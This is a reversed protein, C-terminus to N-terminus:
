AEELLHGQPCRPNGVTLYKQTTRVLYPCECTLKIMRTGAKPGGEKVVIPVHPWPPLSKLLGKVLTTLEVGLRTETPRDSPIGLKRLAARFVKGHGKAVGVAAHTLEHILTAAVDYANDHIPSIFIHIGGDQSATGGWCEGIRRNTRRLARSAPWGVSVHITPPLPYGNAEFHARLYGVLATLWAERNM